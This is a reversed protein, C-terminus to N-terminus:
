RVWTYLNPGGQSNQRRDPHRFRTGHGGCKFTLATVAVLVTRSPTCHPRSQECTKICTQRCHLAQRNIVANCSSWERGGHQVTTALRLNCQVNSHLFCQREIWPRIERCPDAHFIWYESISVGAAVRGIAQAVTASHKPAIQPCRSNRHLEAHRLRCCSGASMGQVM